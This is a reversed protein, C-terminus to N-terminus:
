ATGGRLVRTPTQFFLRLDLPFSWSRVYAVDMELAEGYTAHARAKVQWLGTIGAPVQFREFHHPAFNDTEYQLCPRPGVLSMDGRVVNLLQPLEDLSTRRLWRGFNTVSDRRDLKYLGNKEPPSNPDMSRQIALRHADDTTDVRMTRFKLLTFVKMGEGLRAQRFFVPGPSDLKIRLAIFAFLPAAPVLMAIGATLDFARKVARWRPTLRMPPLSILRLGELTNLEVRPGVVEFLRPVIDIQVDFSRLARILALVEAHSERSFAIIVRDIDFLEILTPLQEPAGLVTLHRLDGRREKPEADVFGVVNMGYETHQLIKRAVLQGIDGAGVIVTNQLYMVSRRAVARAGLRSATVFGVTAIWFIVMQALDPTASGVVVSTAVAGWVTLTALHFVGLLDDLTSYDTREEDRDYLGYLKALVVWGPLAVLIPWTSGADIASPSEQLLHSAFFALTLGIADAVLLVHFVLTGRRRGVAAGRRYRLIAQTREDLAGLSDSPRATTASNGTAAMIAGGDSRRPDVAWFFTRLSTRLPRTVWKEGVLFSPLGVKILCGASFGTKYITLTWLTVSTDIPEREDEAVVSRAPLCPPRTSACV